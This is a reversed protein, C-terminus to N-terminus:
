KDWFLLKKWNVVMKELLYQNVQSAEAYAFFELIIKKSKQLFSLKEWVGRQGDEKEKEL